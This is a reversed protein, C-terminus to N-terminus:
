GEFSAFTMTCRCLAMLLKRERGAVVSVVKALRPACGVHVRLLALASFVNVKVQNNKRKKKCNPMTGDASVISSNSVNCRPSFSARLWEGFVGMIVSDVKGNFIILL